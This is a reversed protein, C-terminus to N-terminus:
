GEQSVTWTGNQYQKQTREWKGNVLNWDAEKFDYVYITRDDFVKELIEEVINWDGSALGCGIRPMGINLEPAFDYQLKMMVDVIADYDADLKDTSYNFQTYANIIRFSPTQATSYTGLKSKDGWLTKIDAAHAEPFQEKIQRAIGAGFSLKCNCGHVIIDMPSQLLDGERYEIM